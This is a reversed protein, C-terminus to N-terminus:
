RVIRTARKTDICTLAARLLKSGFRYRLEDEYCACSCDFVAISSAGTYTLHLRVDTRLTGVKTQTSDHAEIV